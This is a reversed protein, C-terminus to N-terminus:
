FRAPDLPGSGEKYVPDTGSSDLKDSPNENGTGKDGASESGGTSSGDTKEEKKKYFLYYLAFGILGYKIIDEQKM